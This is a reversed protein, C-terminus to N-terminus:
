QEILVTPGYGLGGSSAARRRSSHSFGLVLHKALSARTLQGATRRSDLQCRGVGLQDSGLSGALEGTYGKLSTLSASDLHRLGLQRQQPSPARLTDCPSAPNARSQRELVGSTDPM